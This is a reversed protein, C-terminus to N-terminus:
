KKKLQKDQQEKNELFHLLEMTHKMPQDIDKLYNLYEEEKIKLYEILQDLGIQLEIKLYLHFKM